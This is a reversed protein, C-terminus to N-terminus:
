PHTARTRNVAEEATDMIIQQDYLSNRKKIKTVTLDFLRVKVAKEVFDALDNEDGGAQSLFDKLDRDTEDSLDISLKPM